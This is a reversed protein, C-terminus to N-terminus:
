ILESLITEIDSVNYDCDKLGFTIDSLEKEKVKQGNRAKQHLQALRYMNPRTKTFRALERGIQSANDVSGEVNNYLSAGSVYLDTFIITENKLDVILPTAATSAGSVDFKNVVTKIDFTKMDNSVSKRMMWGAHSVIESFNNGSYKYIQMALYRVEKKVAKLSIDIFEAAGIPADTIDGSHVIGDDALETYSVHGQYVFDEDFQIVSLDLDTSETGNKWYIFLRLVKDFDVKIQSGRGVTLIGDSAKRQQLPVTYDRLIPDIWINKGTWDGKAAIKKRLAPQIIALVAKLQIKTLAHRANNPLIIMRGKKNVVTRYELENITKFYTELVLLNKLTIKEAAKEFATLILTTDNPFRRLLEHIKRGLVGERKSLHNMLLEVSGEKIWKETLSNYTIIKGNRLTDFAAATKPFRKQYESPHIYRGLDIWLGRYRNLDELLNASKELVELIWRRHRRAFKPFKIKEALSIDTETLAAFLRLLDTPTRAINKLAEAEEKEWLSKLVFAQTEKMTILAPNINNVGFVTLLEIIDTHLAEKISSKAYLNQLLFQELAGEAENEYALKLDIWEIHSDKKRGKLKKIAKTYIDKTQFQTIPDAGFENLDFLWKPVVFNNDLKVGEKVMGLYNAAYGIIRKTFYADGHPVKNPFGMFLPVYVVNGGRKETLTKITTEYNEFVSRDAKQLLEPNSVRYGLGALESLFTLIETKLLGKGKAITIINLRNLAINRM